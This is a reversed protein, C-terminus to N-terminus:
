LLFPIAQVFKLGNNYASTHFSKQKYTGTKSLSAIISILWIHFWGNLCM